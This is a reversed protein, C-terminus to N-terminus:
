NEAEVTLGRALVPIVAEQVEEYYGARYMEFEEEHIALYEATGMVGLVTAPDYEALPAGAEAQLSEILPLYEEFQRTGLERMKEPSISNLFAERYQILPNTEAFEMLCRIFRELAERATDADEVEEEFTELMEDSEREIIAVYLDAKSDFFRYFTSKAIGVPDTIDEINTKRPGYTRLLERGTEILEERIRAREEDSFGQM